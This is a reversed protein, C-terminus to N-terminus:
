NLRKVKVAKGFNDARLDHSGFVGNSISVPVPLNELKPLYRPEVQQWVEGNDLEFNWRKKDDRYAAILKHSLSTQATAEQPEPLIERTSENSVSDNSPLKETISDEPGPQSAISLIITDVCKLREENNEVKSCSLLSERLGSNSASSNSASAVLFVAMILMATLKRTAFCYRGTIM